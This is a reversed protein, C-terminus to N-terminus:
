SQMLDWFVHLHSNRVKRHHYIASSSSFKRSLASCPSCVWHHVPAASVTLYHCYHVTPETFCSTERTWPLSHLTSLAQRLGCLQSANLWFTFFYVLLILLNLFTSRQYLEWYFTFFVLWCGCMGKLPAEGHVAWFPTFLLLWFDPCSSSGFFCCCFFCLPVHQLMKCDLSTNPFFSYGWRM